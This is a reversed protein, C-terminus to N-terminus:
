LQTSQWTHWFSFVLCAILCVFLMTKGVAAIMALQRPRGGAALALRIIRIDQAHMTPAWASTRRERAILQLNPDSSQQALRYVLFLPVISLVMGLMALALYVLAALTPM